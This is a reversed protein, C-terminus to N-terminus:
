VVALGDSAGRDAMPSELVTGASNAWQAKLKAIDADSLNGKMTLVPVSASVEGDAVIEFSEARELTEVRAYMRGGQHHELRLSQVPKVEVGTEFDYVRTFQGDSVIRLKRFLAPSSADRAAGKEKHAPAGGTVDGNFTTLPASFTVEDASFSMTSGSPHDIKVCDPKGCNLKELMPAKFAHECVEIGNEALWKCDIRNGTVTEVVMDPGGSRLRVTDGPEIGHERAVAAKAEQEVQYPMWYAFHGSQNGVDDDQLLTVSTSAGPRGNHDVWSLNVM